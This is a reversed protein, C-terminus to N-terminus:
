RLPLIRRQSSNLILQPESDKMSTLSKGDLFMDVLFEANNLHSAKRRRSQELGPRPRQRPRCPRFLLASPHPHHSTNSTSTRTRSPRLASRSKPKRPRPTSKCKATPNPPQHPNPPLSTSPTHAPSNPIINNNKPNPHAPRLISLRTNSLPTCLRVYSSAWLVGM